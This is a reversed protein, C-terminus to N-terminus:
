EVVITKRYPSSTRDPLATKWALAGIGKITVGTTYMPVLPSSTSLSNPEAPSATTDVTLPGTFNYCNFLFNSGITTVASPISLPQAFAECGSMFGDGISSLRDGLQIKSKFSAAARLFDNGISTVNPLVLPVDLKPIPYFVASGIITIHSFYEVSSLNPCNYLFYDPISTPQSGFTYRTVTSKPVNFTGKPTSIVISSSFSALNNYDSQAKLVLGEPHGTTYLTGWETGDDQPEASISDVSAELNALNKQEPLAGGMEEVANYADTLDNYAETIISNISM